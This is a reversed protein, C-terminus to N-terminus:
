RRSAEERPREQDVCTDSSSTVMGHGFLSYTEGHETIGLQPPFPILSVLAAIAVDAVELNCCLWVCEWHSLEQAFHSTHKFAIWLAVVFM